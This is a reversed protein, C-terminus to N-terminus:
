IRLLVSSLSLVTWKSLLLFLYNLLVPLAKKEAADPTYFIIYSGGEVASLKVAM